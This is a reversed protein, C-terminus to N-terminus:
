RSRSCSPRGQAVAGAANALGFAAVVRGAQEFSGTAERALLIIALIAMGIALSGFASAVVPVGAGPLSLLAHYRRAASRVPM